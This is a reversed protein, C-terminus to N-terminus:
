GARCHLLSGAARIYVGCFSQLSRQCFPYICQSADSRQLRVNEANIIYAHRNRCVVDAPHSTPSQRLWFVQFLSTTTVSHICDVNCADSHSGDFKADDAVAEGGLAEMQGEYEWVRVQFDISKQLSFWRRLPRFFELGQFPAVTGHIEWRGLVVGARIFEKTIRVYLKHENQGAISRMLIRHHPCQLRPLM